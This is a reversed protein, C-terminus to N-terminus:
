PLKLATLLHQWYLSLKVSVSYIKHSLVAVPDDAAKPEWCCEKHVTRLAAAVSPIHAEGCGCYHYGSMHVWHWTSQSMYLMSPNLHVCNWVQSILMSWTETCFGLWDNYKHYHRLYLIHFLPVIFDFCHGLFLFPSPCAPLSNNVLGHHPYSVQPLASIGSRHWRHCGPWNWWM